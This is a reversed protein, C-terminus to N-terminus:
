CNQDLGWVWPWASSSKPQRAVWWMRIWLFRWMSRCLPENSEANSQGSGQM